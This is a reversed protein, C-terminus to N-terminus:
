GRSFDPAEQNASFPKIAVRPIPRLKEWPNGESAGREGPTSERCEAPINGETLKTPPTAKQGLAELGKMLINVAANVDRDMSMGCAPCDYVRIEQPMDKKGGCVSCTKTSPFSRAVESPTHSKNKFDAMIGGIGTESIARGHGSAQMWHVSEKQFCVTEYRRTVERILKNRIDKRRNKLREYRRRRKLKKKFRNRGRAEPSRAIRRDLRRIGKDIPIRFEVKCGNGETDILTLQTSCGADMGVAKGKRAEHIEHQSKRYAEDKDIWCAIKLFYGGDKRILNANSIEAGKPVQDLGRVRIWRKFKQLRIRKGGELDLDYTVGFQKLPISNVESKFRLSGTKEGRAAKTRLSNLNSWLRERIGQKYQSGLAEFYREEMGEPTLVEVSTVKCDVEDMCGQFTLCHNYFWKAERFLAKFSEDEGWSLHSRDVKIEYVRCIQGKRREQTAIRTRIRKNLPAGVKDDM